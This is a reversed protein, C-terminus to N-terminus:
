CKECVGSPHLISKGSFYNKCNHCHKVKKGLIKGSCSRDSYCDGKGIGQSAAVAAAIVLAGFLLDGVPLPGDVMTLWWMTGATAAAAEAAQRHITGGSAGELERERREAGPVGAKQAAGVIQQPAMVRMALQGLSRLSGEDPKGSSHEMLEDAMEVIPEPLRPPEGHPTPEEPSPSAAQRAVGARATPKVDVTHGGAVRAALHTAEREAPEGPHSLRTPNPASAGQTREQVVHVLEHAVTERSPQADRFAIRSGRTAAEAGLMKMEEAKGLHARVDDFPQGFAAEMDSRFPIQEGSGRTANRFFTDPTALGGSRMAQGVFSPMRREIEEGPEARRHINEEDGQACESCKRHITGSSEAAKGPTSWALRLWTPSVRHPAPKSPPRPAAQPRRAVDPRPARSFAFM